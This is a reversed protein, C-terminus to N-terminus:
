RALRMVPVIIDIDLHQRLWNAFAEANRDNWYTSQGISIWRRGATAVLAVTEAPQLTM